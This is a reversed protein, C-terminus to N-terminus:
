NDQIKERPENNEQKEFQKPNTQKLLGEILNGLLKYLAWILIICIIFLIISRM